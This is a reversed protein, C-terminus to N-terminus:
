AENYKKNSGKFKEVSYRDQNKKIKKLVEESLDIKNMQCYRILFWFVDALEEGIEKKREEARKEVNEEDIFRFHELVESSEMSLAIALEKPTHFKDWDREECFNKIKEKLNEITTDKDM